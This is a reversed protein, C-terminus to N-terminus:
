SCDHVASRIIMKGLILIVLWPRIILFAPNKIILRNMIISFPKTDKIELTKECPSLIKYLEDKLINKVDKENTEKNFRQSKIKEILDCVIDYSIDSTILLEELEELTNNDLKKGTFINSLKQGFKGFM